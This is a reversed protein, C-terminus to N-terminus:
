IHKIYVPQTFAQCEEGDGNFTDVYQVHDPRFWGQTDSDSTNLWQAYNPPIGGVTGKGCCSCSRKKGFDNRSVQQELCKKRTPSVEFFFKEVTKETINVLLLVAFLLVYAWVAFSFNIQLKHKKYELVTKLQTTDELKSRFIVTLLLGLLAIVINTIQLYHSKLFKM